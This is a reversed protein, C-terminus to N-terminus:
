KSRNSPPSDHLRILKDLRWVLPMTNGSKPKTLLKTCFVPQASHCNPISVMRHLSVPYSSVGSGRFQVFVCSSLRGVEHFKTHRRPDLVPQTTVQSAIMNFTLPM